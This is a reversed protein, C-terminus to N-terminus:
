VPMAMAYRRYSSADLVEQRNGTLQQHPQQERDTLMQGPAGIDGDAPHLRGM